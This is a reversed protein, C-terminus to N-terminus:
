DGLQIKWNIKAIDEVMSGYTIDLREKIEERTLKAQAAQVQKLLELRFANLEDESQQELDKDFFQNINSDFLDRLYNQDIAYATQLVRVANFACILSAKNSTKLITESTLLNEASRLLGQIKGAQTQCDKIIDIYKKIIADFGNMAFQCTLVIDLATYNCYALALLFSSLHLFQFKEGNLEKEYSGDVYSYNDNNYYVVFHQKANYQAAVIISNHKRLYERVGDHIKTYKQWFYDQM